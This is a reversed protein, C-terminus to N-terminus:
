QTYLCAPRHPDSFCRWTDIHQLEPLRLRTTRRMASARCQSSSLGSHLHSPVHLSEWILVKSLQFSPQWFIYHWGTAILKEHGDIKFGFKDCTKYYYKYIKMKKPSKSKKPSKKAAPRKLSSAGTSSQSPAAAPRKMGPGAKSKQSPSKKAPTAPTDEVSEPKKKTAKGKQQGKGMSAAEPDTSGRANPSEGDDDSLKEVNKLVMAGFLAFYGEMVSSKGQTGFGKWQAPIIFSLQWKRELYVVNSRVHDTTVLSSAFISGGFLPCLTLCRKISRRLELWRGKRNGHHGLDFNYKPALHQVVM